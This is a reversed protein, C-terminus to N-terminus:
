FSSVCVFSIAKYKVLLSRPASPKNSLSRGSLTANAPTVACPGTRVIKLTRSGLEKRGHLAKKQTRVIISSSNTTTHLM